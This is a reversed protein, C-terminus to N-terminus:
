LGRSLYLSFTVVERYSSVRGGAPDSPVLDDRAVNPAYRADLGLHWSPLLDRWQVGGGVYAGYAPTALAWRAAGAFASLAFHEGLRLRYDVLRVGLMWDDDVEALELRIGLDQRESVARRAGLGFYPAPSWATERTPLTRDLDIWVRSLSAGADAFLEAGFPRRARGTETAPDDGRSGESDARPPAYSVFAFLRAFGDGDADRGGNLEAGLSFRRWPYAWRLTADHARVYRVTSYSENALTRYRLEFDGGRLPRWGLRLAHARAGVADGRRRQDGGWHGLVRGDNALGDGYLPHVYWANQWESFEYTFDFREFLRPFDIGISLSANGLLYNERSLTDEGGYEVYAAFPVRGPFVFRSTISALQNGFQESIGSGPPVNDNQAPDFFAEFFSGISADRSGGGFQLIRSAGLSWGPVPEISLQAGAVRPHGRTLGGADVIEDSRAMRAAFVAYRIGLRTLPEFNSITLSPMAEAETSILMASDTFPSLWHERWGLDLQLKSWGVSLLTGSPSIEGAHAVAGLTVHAHDLPRWIARASAEWDDDRALGRRNPVASGSGDAWGVGVRAHTLATRPLYLALVREARACAEADIRCAQPLADMVTAAAIPRSLTAVGALVLVREVDREAEPDLSLPLYPSVGRASAASQLAVATVAALAVRLLM